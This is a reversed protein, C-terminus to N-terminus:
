YFYYGSTTKRYVPIMWGIRFGFLLDIQKKDDKMGTDFDIDRRNQTFGQSFEFGGFFNLVRTSGVYSYGIFQNLVLGSTLRDYGKNYDGDLWPVSEQEKVQIRVWHQMYGIGAKLLIGSNPNPSFVPIVKGVQGTITFARGFMDFVAYLGGIDILQGDSTLVHKLISDGDNISSSWLHNYELGFTWNSVTKIQVGFAISSNNNFRDAMDGGPIFYGYSAYIIPMFISSDKLSVQANTHLIIFCSVILIIKRLVKGNVM